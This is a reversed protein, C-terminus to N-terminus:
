TGRQNLYEKTDQQIAVNEAHQSHGGGVQKRQDQELIGELRKRREAHLLSSLQIGM